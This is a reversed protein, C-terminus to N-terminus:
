LLVRKRDRTEADLVLGSYIIGKEQGQERCSAYTLLLVRKRDKNQADLMLVTVDEEQRTRQRM